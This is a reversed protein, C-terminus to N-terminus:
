NAVAPQPKAAQGTTLRAVIEEETLAELRSEPCLYRSQSQLGTEKSARRKAYAYRKGANRREILSLYWGQTKLFAELTQKEM